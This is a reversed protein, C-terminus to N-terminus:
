RAWEVVENKLRGSADKVSLATAKVRMDNRKQADGSLEKIVSAMAEPGLSRQDKFIAAGAKEFFHANHVQNNREDPYPVLIMPKGFAALEFIAAAGARSIAMDCASYALNIDEIFDLVKADTNNEKYIAKTSEFGRAGTIHVVQFTSREHGNFFAFSRAVIDNLSVAGQSGGMVLITFRDKKLKLASFAEEKMEALSGKRLPNGTFVTKKTDFYKESERFSVAIRGAFRGLMKNTRGPVLNQEHIMTRMGMFAAMLVVGGATYGGFGIVVRPRERLLIFFALLGDFFLKALFVLSKVGTKYPMPNASLFIKKYPKEKLISKDLRRRSAVFVIEAKDKLLEEALAVAPFIHGGSGGSAILIKM